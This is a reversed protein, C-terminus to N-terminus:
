HFSAVFYDFLHQEQKVVKHALEPHWQVALIPSVHEKSHLAEIVGDPAWAIPELQAAVQAVAQHHYSNVEIATKRYIEALLSDARITVGHTAFWGVTPQQEHKGAKVEPILSIDQYLTGGLAVNVLQMGRCVAFIPKGQRMAATILALEFADRAPNVEGLKPDAEQGYLRPDIDQGGALLLKDLQAVYQEALEPAGIPLVLPVGGAAQVADVFGQPTYTVFNGAFTPTAHLLQNAAIGIIPKSM